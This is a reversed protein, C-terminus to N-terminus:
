APKFRDPVTLGYHKQMSAIFRAWDVDIDGTHAGCDLCQGEGDLQAQYSRHVDIGMRGFRAVCTGENDNVWVTRGDGDVQFDSVIESIM